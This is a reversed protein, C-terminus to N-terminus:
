GRGSDLARTLTRNTAENEMAEPTDTYVTVKARNRQVESSMEVGVGGAQKIARGRRELDQQVDASQLLKRVGAKNLEVKVDGM